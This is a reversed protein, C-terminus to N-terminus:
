PKTSSVLATDYVEEFSLAVPQSRGVNFTKLLVPFGSAEPILGRQFGPLVADFSANYVAPDLDKFFREKVAKRVSEPDNKIDNAARWLARMLRRMAEPNEKLYKRSTVIDTLPMAAFEPVDNRPYSVWIQGWGEAVGLVSDPPSFAYADVRGQRAAAALGPGDNVPQITLDKDPDVGYATLTSRVLIDTSSGAAPLGLTMGKLGNLKDRVPSSQTIGKAKMADVAKNTLSIITTPEKSIQAVAVIDRNASLVTLVGTSGTGAVDAQGTVVTQAAQAANALVGLYNLDLGEEEFYNKSIAQLQTLVALSETAPLFTMKIPQRAATAAATTTATTKGPTTSKKATTPTSAGAAAVPAPEGAVTTTTEEVGTTTTTAQLTSTTSETKVSSKAQEKKDGGGCAALLLGIATVLVLLARLGSSKRQM